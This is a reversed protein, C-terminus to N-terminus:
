RHDLWYMIGKYVEGNPNLKCGPCFPNNTVRNIMDQKTLGIKALDYSKQPQAFDFYPAGFYVKSDHCSGCNTSFYEKLLFQFGDPGQLPPPNQSFTNIDGANRTNLGSSAAANDQTSGACNNFLLPMLALIFITLTSYLLQKRKM